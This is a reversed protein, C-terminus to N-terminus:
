TMTITPTLSETLRVTRRDVSTVKATGALETEENLHGSVLIQKPRGETDDSNPLLAKM